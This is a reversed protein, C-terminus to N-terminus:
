GRNNVLRILPTDVNLAKNIIPRYKGPIGSKHCPDLGYVQGLFAMDNNHNTYYDLKHRLLREGEVQEYAKLTCPVRGNEKIFNLIEKKSNRIDHKRKNNTTRGTAMAIKRLNKDYMKSEKSIYNEFRAGVRREKQTKGLRSPWRGSQLFFDLAEKKNGIMQRTLKNTTELLRRSLINKYTTVVKFMKNKVVM